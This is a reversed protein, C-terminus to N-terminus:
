KDNRIKKELFLTEKSIKGNRTIEFYYVIEKEDISFTYEFYMLEENNFLTILSNFNKLNGFLLDLLLTIANLANTKGSANAGFFCCGKLVNNYVNEHLLIESKTPNLDIITDKIFSKFNKFKIKTLM